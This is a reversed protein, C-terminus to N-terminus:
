SIYATGWVMPIQRTGPIVLCRILKRSFFVEGILASTQGAFVTMLASSQSICPSPGQIKMETLPAPGGCPFRVANDTEEDVYM